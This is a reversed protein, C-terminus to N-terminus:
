AFTRALQGLLKRVAMGQPTSLDLGEMAKGIAEFDATRNSIATISADGDWPLIDMPHVELVRCIDLLTASSLRNAGTEYKQVQQYTVGISRGLGDLSFGRHKRVAKLRQGIQEDLSPAAAEPTPTNMLM